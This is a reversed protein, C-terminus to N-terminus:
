IIGAGEAQQRLSFIRVPQAELSALKLVACWLRPALRFGLLPLERGQSLVLRITPLEKAHYQRYRQIGGIGLRSILIAKIRM